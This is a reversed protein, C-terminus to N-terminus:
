ILVYYSIAREEVTPFLKPNEVNGELLKSLQTKFQFTLLNIGVWFRDM